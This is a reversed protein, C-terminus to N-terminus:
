FLGYVACTAGLAMGVGPLVGFVLCVTTYYSGGTSAGAYCQNSTEVPTLHACHDTIFYNLAGVDTVAFALALVTALLVRQYVKRM